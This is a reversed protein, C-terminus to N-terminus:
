NLNLIFLASAWLNNLNVLNNAKIYYIKQQTGSVPTYMFSKFTGEIGYLSDKSLGNDKESPELFVKFGKDDYVYWLLNFDTTYITTEEGMIAKIRITKNMYDEPNVFLEEITIYDGAQRNEWVKSPGQRYIEKIDIHFFWLAGVVAVLICSIVFLAL